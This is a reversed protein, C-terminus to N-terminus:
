GMVSYGHIGLLPHQAQEFRDNDDAMTVSFGLVSYPIYSFKHKLWPLRVVARTLWERWPFTTESYVLNSQIRYLYIYGLVSMSPILTDLEFCVCAALNAERM